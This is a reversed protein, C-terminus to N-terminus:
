FQFYIFPNEKSLMMLSLVALLSAGIAWGWNLKKMIELSNKFAVCLIIGSAVYILSAGDGSLLPVFWELSMEVNSVLGLAANLSSTLEITEFSVMGKFVKGADGFHEARFLVWACNVYLFTIVWSIVKPLRLGSSGWIRCVVVGLGHMGGWAM